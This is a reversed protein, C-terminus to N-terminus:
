FDEVLICPCIGHGMVAVACNVLYEPLTDFGLLDPYHALSAARAQERTEARPRRRHDVSLKGKNNGGSQARGLSARKLTDIDLTRSSPGGMAGIRVFDTGPKLGLEAM